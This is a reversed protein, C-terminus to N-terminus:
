KEVAVASIAISNNGNSPYVQSFTYHQIGQYNLYFVSCVLVGYVIGFVENIELPLLGLNQSLFLIFAIAISSLYIWTFHKLWRLNVTEIASYAEKLREDFKNLANLLFILIGIFLLQSGKFILQYWITPANFHDAISQTNDYNLLVYHDIVSLIM